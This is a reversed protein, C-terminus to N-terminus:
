GPEIDLTRPLGFGALISNDLFRTIGAVGQDTVTIVMLGHAHAIPSHSDELYCGFAPQGNASTHVLRYRRSDRFAIVRLFNAVSDHGQYELPLPPMRLWVDDTLLRVIEDVDGVEFAEAFRAVLERERRSEPLGAPAPLHVSLTTRARTLAGTVSDETTDLIEAVEGARYGLVDRLVLVARQRPPLAQVAAVFALSIAEKSEYQAEPGPPPQSAGLVDPYPEMPSADVWGTPPPLEVADRTVKPRRRDARMANLCRNTAIRYLWTRLSARGEFRSLGRWAALLTDQVVDEADLASGLLRYCHLHLDRRYPAVLESFAAQDGSRARRLM